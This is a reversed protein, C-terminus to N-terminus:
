SKFIPLNHTFDWIKFKQQFIQSKLVKHANDSTCFLLQLRPLEPAGEGGNATPEGGTNNGAKVNINRGVSAPAQAEPRQKLTMSAQSKVSGTM